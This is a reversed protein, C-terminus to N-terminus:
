TNVKEELVGKFYAGLAGFIYFLYKFFKYLLIILLARTFISFLNITFNTLYERKFSCTFSYNFINRSFNEGLALPIMLLIILSTAILLSELSIFVFKKSFNRTRLYDTKEKDTTKKKKKFSHNVFKDFVLILVTSFLGIFISLATIFFGSLTDNFVKQTFLSLAIGILSFLINERM